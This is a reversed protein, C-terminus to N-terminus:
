LLKGKRLFLRIKLTLGWFVYKYVIFRSWVELLYLGNRNGCDFSNLQVVGSGGRPWGKDQRTSREWSTTMVRARKRKGRKM